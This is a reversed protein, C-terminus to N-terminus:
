AAVEEALDNYRAANIGTHEEIRRDPWQQERMRRVVEAREAKTLQVTRDGLIARIVAAEDIETKLPRGVPGIGAPQADPDDITDDDWSLPGAWGKHEALSRIYNAKPGTPVTMCLRRYVSDIAKVTDPTMHTHRGRIFQSIRESTVGLHEGIQGQTWGIRCLAKLRRVSGTCDMLIPGRNLYVRIEYRRKRAANLARTHHKADWDTIDADTPWAPGYRARYGKWRYVTSADIDFKHATVVPGHDQTYALVDRILRPDTRSANPSM